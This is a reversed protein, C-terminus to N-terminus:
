NIDGKTTVAETSAISSTLPSGVSLTSTQALGPQMSQQQQTYYAAAMAPNMNGYSAYPTQSYYSPMMGQMNQMSQMNQMQQPYMAAYSAMYQQMQAPTMMGYASTSRGAAFSNANTASAATASPRVPTLGANSAASRAAVAGVPNAVPMDDSDDLDDESESGSIRSGDANRKPQFSSLDLGNVNAWRVFEEKSAQNPPPKSTFRSPNQKYKRRCLRKLDQTANVRPASTAVRIPGFTTQILRVTSAADEYSFKRHRVGALFLASMLTGYDSDLEDNLKALKETVSEDHKNCLQPAVRRDIFGPRSTPPPIVLKKNALKLCIPCRTEPAEETVAV